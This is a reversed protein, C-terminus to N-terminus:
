EGWCDKIGYKAFVRTIEEWEIVNPIVRAKMRQNFTIESEINLAQMIEMKVSLRDQKRVQRWGKKFYFRKKEEETYIRKRLM